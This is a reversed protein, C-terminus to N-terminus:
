GREMLVLSYPPLGELSAFVDDDLFLMWQSIRKNLFMDKLEVDLDRQYPTIRLVVENSFIIHLNSNEVLIKKTYLGIMIEKMVRFKRDRKPSGEDLDDSYVILESASYLKYSAAEAIFQVCVTTDKEQMKISLMSGFSLGLSQVYFERSELIKIM